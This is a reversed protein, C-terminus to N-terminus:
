VCALKCLHHLKMKLRTGLANQRKEIHLRRSTKGVNRNNFLVNGRAAEHLFRCPSKVQEWSSEGGSEQGHPILLKGRPSLSPVHATWIHKLIGGLRKRFIANRERIFTIECFLQKSSFDRWVDRDPLFFLTRFWTAILAVTQKNLLLVNKRSTLLFYDACLPQTVSPSFNARILFLLCQMPQFQREREVEYIGILLIRM